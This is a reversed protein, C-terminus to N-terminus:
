FEHPEIISQTHTSSHQNEPLRALWEKMREELEEKDIQMEERKPYPSHTYFSIKCKTCKCFIEDRLEDFDDIVIEGKRQCKLCQVELTYPVFMKEGKCDNAQCKRM